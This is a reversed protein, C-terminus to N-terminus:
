DHLLFESGHATRQGVIRCNCYQLWETIIISEQHSAFRECVCFRCVEHQELLLNERRYHLQVSEMEVRELILATTWCAAEMQEQTIFSNPKKSSPTNWNM